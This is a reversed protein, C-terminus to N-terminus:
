YYYAIEVLSEEGPVVDFYVRNEVPDYRWDFFEYGDVFVYIEQDNVYFYLSIIFVIIFSSIGGTRTAIVSHSSRHNIQDHRKKILFFKQIFPSIIASLIIASVFLLSNM